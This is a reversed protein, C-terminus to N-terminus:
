SLLGHYQLIQEIKEQYVAPNESKIKLVEALNTILQHLQAAVALELANIGALPGKLLRKGKAGTILPFMAKGQGWRAGLEFLVYASDMSSESIIGILIKCSNVENKLIEDTNVGVALRYGDVSTCRIKEAKIPLAIRILEILLKTIAKDQSSHSIFIDLTFATKEVIVEANSKKQQDIKLKKEVYEKGLVTIQALEKHPYSNGYVYGSKKLSDILQSAEYNNDLAVENLLLILKASWCRDIKRLLYLKELLIEKKERVSLDAREGEFSRNLVFSDSSKFLEQLAKLNEIRIETDERLQEINYIYSWARTISLEWAKINDRLLQKVEWEIESPLEKELFKTFNNEL